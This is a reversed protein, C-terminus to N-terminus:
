RRESKRDRDASDPKGHAGAAGGGGRRTYREESSRAASPTPAKGWRFYGWGVAAWEGSWAGRAINALWLSGVSKM